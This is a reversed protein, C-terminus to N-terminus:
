EWREDCVALRPQCNYDLTYDLLALGSDLRDFRFLHIPM